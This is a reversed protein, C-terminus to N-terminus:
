KSDLGKTPLAISEAEKELIRIRRRLRLYVMAFACCALTSVLGSAFVRSIPYVNIEGGLLNGNGVNPMAVLLIGVLIFPWTEANSNPLDSMHLFIWITSYALLTYSFTAITYAPSLGALHCVHAQLMSYGFIAVAVLGYKANRSLKGM